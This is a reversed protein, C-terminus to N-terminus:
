AVIEIHTPYRHDGEHGQRLCCGMENSTTDGCELAALADQAQDFERGARAAELGYRQRDSVASEFEDDHDTEVTAREDHDGAHGAPRGCETEIEWDEGDPGPTSYTFTALCQLRGLEAIAKNRRENAARVEELAINAARTAEDFEAETGMM